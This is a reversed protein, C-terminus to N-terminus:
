WVERRSILNLFIGVLNDCFNKTLIVSDLMETNRVQFASALILDLFRYLHFFHFYNTLFHVFELCLM